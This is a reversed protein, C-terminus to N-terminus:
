SSLEVSATVVSDGMIAVLVGIAAGSPVSAGSESAAVVLIALKGVSSVLEEGTSLSTFEVGVVAGSVSFEASSCVFRGAPALRTVVSVEASSLVIGASSPTLVDAAAVVSVVADVEVFVETDCHVAPQM